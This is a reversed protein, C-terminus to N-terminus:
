RAEAFGEASHLHKGCAFIEEGLFLDSSAAARDRDSVYAGRPEVTQTCSENCYNSIITPVSPSLLPPLFKILAMQPRSLHSNDSSRQM